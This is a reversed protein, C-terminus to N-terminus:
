VNETYMTDQFVFRILINCHNFGSQAHELFNKAIYVDLPPIGSIHPLLTSHTQYPLRWLVQLAKRSTVYLREMDKNYLACNQYGYFVMCYQQLLKNTVASSKCGFNVM